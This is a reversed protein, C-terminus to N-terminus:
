NSVNKPIPGYRYVVRLMSAVMHTNQTVTNCRHWILYLYEFKTPHQLLEPNYTMNQENIPFFNM